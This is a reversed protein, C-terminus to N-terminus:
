PRSLPLLLASPDPPNLTHCSVISGGWIKVLNWAFSDFSRPNNSARMSYSSLLAPQLSTFITAINSKKSSILIRLIFAAKNKLQFFTALDFFTFYNRILM